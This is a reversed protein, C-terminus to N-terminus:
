YGDYIYIYIQISMLILYYIFVRACVWEVVGERLQFLCVISISRLFIKNLWMCLYIWGCWEYVIRLSRHPARTCLPSIFLLIAAFENVKISSCVVVCDVFHLYAMKLSVGCVRMCLICMYTNYLRRVLNYLTQTLTVNAKTLLHSFRTRFLHLHCKITRSYIIISLTSPTFAHVFAKRTLHLSLSLSSACFGTIPRTACTKTKSVM